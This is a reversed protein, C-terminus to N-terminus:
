CSIMNHRRLVRFRRTVHRRSSVLDNFQSSSMQSTDCEDVSIIKDGVMLLDILASDEQIAEIVPPSLTESTSTAIGLQITSCCFILRRAKKQHFTNM